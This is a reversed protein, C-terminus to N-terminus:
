AANRTLDRTRISRVRRELDSSAEASLAMGGFRVSLYVQTIELVEPGLPHAASVLNEAHRLPPTGPARQVGHQNLASELTEYISTAKALERARPSADTLPKPSQKKRRIVFVVAAATLAGGGVLWLLWAWSRNAGPKVTPASKTISQFLEVQQSLNYEIVNHHWRQSTAEM